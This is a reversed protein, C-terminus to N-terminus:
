LSVLCSWSALIQTETEHLIDLLSPSSDSYCLGTVSFFRSGGFRTRWDVYHHMIHLQEVRQALKKYCPVRFFGSLSLLRLFSTSPLHGCHSVVIHTKTQLPQGLLFSPCEYQFSFYLVARLQLNDIISTNNRWQKRREQGREIKQAPPAPPTQRVRGAAKFPARGQDSFM